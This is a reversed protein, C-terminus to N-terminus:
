DLEDTIDSRSTDNNLEIGLLRRASDGNTVSSMNKNFEDHEKMKESDGFYKYINSKLIREEDSIESVDVKKLVNNHRRIPNNYNTIESLKKLIKMRIKQPLLTSTNSFKRQWNEIRKNRRLIKTAIHTEEPVNPGEDSNLEINFDTGSSPEKSHQKLTVPEEHLEITLDENRLTITQDTTTLIESYYSVPEYEYDKIVIKDTDKVRHLLTTVEISREAQAKRTTQKGRETTERSSDKALIITNTANQKDQFDTNRHSSYQFINDAESKDSDDNRYDPMWLDLESPKDVHLEQTVETSNHKINRPINIPKENDFKKNIKELVRFEHALNKVLGKERSQGNKNRKRIKRNKVLEPRSRKISTKYNHYTMENTDNILFEKIAQSIEVSSKSKTAKSLKRSFKIEPNMDNNKRTAHKNFHQSIDVECSSTEKQIEQRWISRDFEDSAKFFLISKVNKKTTYKPRLTSKFRKNSRRYNLQTIKLRDVTRLWDNFIAEENRSLYDTDNFVDENELNKQEGLYKRKNQKPYITTIPTISTTVLTESENTPIPGQVWKDIPLGDSSETSSSSDSSSSDATYENTKVSKVETGNFVSSKKRDIDLTASIITMNPQINNNGIINFRKHFSWNNSDPQDSTSVTSRVNKVIYFRTNRNLMTGVMSNKRLAQYDNNDESYGENETNTRSIDQSNSASGNDPKTREVSYLDSRGRLNGRRVGELVLYRYKHHKKHKHKHHKKRKNRRHKKHVRRHKHSTKYKKNVNRLHRRRKKKKKHKRRKYPKERSEKEIDYNDDDDMIESIDSDKSELSEKEKNKKEYSKQGKSNNEIFKMEESIKSEKKELSNTEKKGDVNVIDKSHEMKKIKKEMTHVKTKIIDKAYDVYKKIQDKLGKKTSSTRMSKRKKKRKKKM